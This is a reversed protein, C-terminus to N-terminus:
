RLSGAAVSRRRKGKLKQWDKEISSEKQQRHSFHIEETRCHRETRGGVRAHEGAAQFNGTRGKVDHEHGPLGNGPKASAGANVSRRKVSSKVTSNKGKKAAM